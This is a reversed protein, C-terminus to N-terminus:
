AITKPNWCGAQRLNLADTAHTKSRLLCAWQYTRLFRRFEADGYRPHRQIMSKLYGWLMAIGGILIPPRTMRFTASALMYVLGTGMFYQGIGHRVRGTWWNKHSTGMPRLHEFNIAPDDWSVSIWGLMRCRHCDIGDWMLERVFGGIQQFCATRYFKVMGVSNEDGCMESVPKGAEDRFFPKGSCTGIRPEAEMREMLTQFYRAPLDLDLDLKCVYDFDAPNITDYGHYFADIVGGGLKRFGRDERRIVKIFPYKAAYEALIKPTDDTSGDDVILWLAPPCTQAAISDLTRRAYKAEDRCPTVLLYRRSPSAPFDSSPRMM